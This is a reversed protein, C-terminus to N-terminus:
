RALGRAARRRRVAVSDRGTSSTASRGSWKPRTRSRARLRRGFVRGSRPGAPFPRGKTAGRVPIPRERRRTWHEWALWRGRAQGALGNGALRRRTAGTSGARATARPSRCTGGHEGSSGNGASKPPDVRMVVLSDDGMGAPADAGVLMPAKAGGLLRERSGSRATVGSARPASSRANQLSRRLAPFVTVM